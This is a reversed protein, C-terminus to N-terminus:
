FNKFSLPYLKLFDVNGVLFTNKKLSVVNFSGAVIVFNQPAVEKFYKLTGLVKEVEQIEDLIILTHAPDIKIGTEIEFVSIIRGIDFDHKFVPHLCESSEFNIFAKSQFYSEWFAKM